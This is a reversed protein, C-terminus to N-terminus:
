HNKAYRGAKNGADTGIMNLGSQTIHLGDDRFYDGSLTAAKTSIMMFNSNSKCLNKQANQIRKFNEGIASDRTYNAIGIIMCKEVSTERKIKKVMNTLNKKHLKESMDAFADNEGQMWVMYVHGVSLGKKRALRTAANVRKIVGEYRRDVWSVSGSGVCSAPVAIVPTRTQKYYANVFATVLSGKTYDGNAFYSDNQGLGFPEKLVSFNKRDTVYNFAYGAGQLLKPAEQHNGVGTMNSQGCFVIVDVTAEVVVICSFTKKGVKATIRTKGPSVATVKGRSNVRAVKRSASSWSVRGSSNKVSLTYTNGPLLSIKRNSMRANAAEAPITFILLFLLAFILGCAQKYKKM